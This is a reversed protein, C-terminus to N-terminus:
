GGIRGSRGPFSLCPTTAVAEKSSFHQFGTLLGNNGGFVLEERLVHHRPVVHSDQTLKVSFVGGLCPAPLRYPRSGYFFDLGM